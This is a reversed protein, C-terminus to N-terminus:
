MKGAQQGAARDSREVRLQLTLAEISGRMYEISTELRTIRSELKQTVGWAGIILGVFAVTVGAWQAVSGAAAPPNALTEEIRRLRSALEARREVAVRDERACEGEDKWPCEREEGAIASM